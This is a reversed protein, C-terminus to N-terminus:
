VEPKTDPGLLFTVIAELDVSGRWVSKVMRPIGPFTAFFYRHDKYPRVYNWVGRKVHDPIPIIQTM